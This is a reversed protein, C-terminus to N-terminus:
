SSKIRKQGGLDIITQDRQLVITKVVQLLMYSIDFTDIDHFLLVKVSEFANMGFNEILSEAFSYMNIFHEFNPAGSMCIENIM